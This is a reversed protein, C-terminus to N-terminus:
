ATAGLHVTSVVGSDVGPSWASSDDLVKDKFLWAGGVVLAALVIVGIVINRRRRRRERAARRVQQRQHHERALM